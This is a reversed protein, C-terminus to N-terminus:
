GSGISGLYDSKGLKVGGHRLIGYVMASHFYVNPLVFSQLYDWGSTFNLTSNPFKLVVARSEAGELQRPEFGKVFVLTKDIRQKLEAFSAETDEYKPAEVGALRAMCGKATDSVVQVQRTFAFMNPYLRMGLLVAPDLKESEAHLRGKEVIAAVNSLARSLVPVSADHISLSM